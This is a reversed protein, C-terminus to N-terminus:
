SANVEIWEHGLGNALVMRGMRGLGNRLVWRDTFGMRRWENTLTREEIGMQGYSGDTEM